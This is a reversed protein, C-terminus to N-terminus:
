TKILWPFSHKTSFISLSTVINKNKNKTLILRNQLSTIKVFQYKFHKSLWQM